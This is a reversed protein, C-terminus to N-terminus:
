SLCPSHSTLVKRRKSLLLRRYLKCQLRRRAERLILVEVVAAQNLRRTRTIATIKARAQVRM